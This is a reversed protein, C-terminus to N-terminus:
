GAVLLINEDGQPAAGFDAVSPETEGDIYMMLTYTSTHSTTNNFTVSLEADFPLEVSVTKQWEPGTQNTVNVIDGNAKKYAINTIIPDEALIAYKVKTGSDDDSSSCSFASIAILAIIFLRLTAKM